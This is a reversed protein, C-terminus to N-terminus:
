LIKKYYIEIYEQLILLLQMQRNSTTITRWKGGQSRALQEELIRTNVETLQVFNVNTFVHPRMVICEGGWILLM